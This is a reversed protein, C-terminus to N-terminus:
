DLGLDSVTNLHRKWNYYNGEPIIIDIKCHKCQGKIGNVARDHEKGGLVTYIYVFHDELPSRKRKDRKFADDTYTVVSSKKLARRVAGLNVV